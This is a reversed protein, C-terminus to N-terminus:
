YGNLQSLFAFLGDTYAKGSTIFGTNHDGSIKLFSKPENAAEYLRQGHAFPIIDDNPSHVILVPCKLKQIAGLADYKSRCLLRAPFLPLLEAALDPASTFVSELICGAPSYREALWAAVAGGLSRGFLVIKESQEQQTLYKWAAEADLYIGKESPTGDSKGYGRYDFIFVSFGLRYFIAISDLRHSINGANGHFFLITGKSDEAPVYWGHLTVNDATKLSVDKYYLGINKPTAEIQNVPFYILRNQTAFLFATYGLYAVVILLAVSFFSESMKQGKKTM